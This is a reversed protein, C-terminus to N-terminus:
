DGQTLPQAKAINEEVNIYLNLIVKGNEITEHLVKESVIVADPGLQLALEKKAQEIGANVAEKQSREVKTYTKENLTTEIFHVPLEWKLFKIPSENIERHIHKYEPTGFGWVPLQFKGAKLFFKKENNGTLSEHSTQLPATVNVEYWTTAIIEGDAAVLEKKGKEEEEENNDDTSSENIVGSVLKDGPKVYDNVQVKPLGNSVYMKKIIGKKTAILDRPGLPEEEEVIIKEVGELSFTTGKQEVGVWLLEPVDKVLKQQIENPSKLSFIWAGPHIGDSQLQKSIKEEIDKPVGTIKVEWLINSLFLILFFSLLVGLLLEKRRIFRRLLFPYGKRDIFKLKYNTKKNLKRIYKIDRLRINGECRNPAKKRVNWVTLGASTCHQFFLEPKEGTVLITVYGTLYSDQIQKM